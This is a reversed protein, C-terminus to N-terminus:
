VRLRLVPPSYVAYNGGAVSKTIDFPGCDLTVLTLLTLDQGREGVPAVPCCLRAVTSGVAVYGPRATPVGGRRTPEHDPSADPSGERRM